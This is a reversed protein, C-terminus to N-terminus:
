SMLASWFKLDVSKELLIDLFKLKLNENKCIVKMIDVLESYTLELYFYELSMCNKICEGVDVLANAVFIFIDGHNLCVQIFNEENINFLLKWFCKRSISKESMYNVFAMTITDVARDFQSDKYLICQILMDMDDKTCKSLINEIVKYSKNKNIESLLFKSKFDLLIDKPLETNLYLLLTKKSAAEFILESLCIELKEETFLETFITFGVDLKSTSVSSNLIKKMIYKPPDSLCDELFLRSTNQKKKLLSLFEDILLQKEFKDLCEKVHKATTFANKIEVNTTRKNPWNNKQCLSIFDEFFNLFQSVIIGETEM